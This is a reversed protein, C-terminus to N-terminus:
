QNRHFNDLRKSIQELKREQEALKAATKEHLEINRENHRVMTDYASEAASIQREHAGEAERAAREFDRYEGAAQVPRAQEGQHRRQQSERTTPGRAKAPSRAGGHAEHEGFASPTAPGERVEHQNHHGTRQVNPRQKNPLSEAKRERHTASTKATEPQNGITPRRLEHGHPTAPPEAPAEGELASPADPQATRATPTGDAAPETRATKVTEGTGVVGRTIQEQIQPWKQKITEIEEDTLKRGRLEETLAIFKDLTDNSGNM